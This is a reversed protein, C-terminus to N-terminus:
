KATLALPFNKVPVSTKSAPFTWGKMTKAFCAPLSTGMVYAPGSLAGGTVGGSPTIVFDLMLTHKGIAIENSARAAQLCPGLTAAHTRVGSMVDEKSLETAVVRGKAASNRKDTV